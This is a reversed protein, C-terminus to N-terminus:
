YGVTILSNQVVLAIDTRWVIKNNGKKLIIKYVPVRSVNSTKAAKTPSVGAQIHGILRNSKQLILFPMM